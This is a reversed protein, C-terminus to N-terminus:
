DRFTRALMPLKTKTQIFNLLKPKTAKKVKKPPAKEELGLIEYLNGIEKWTKLLKPDMTNIKFFAVFGFSKYKM